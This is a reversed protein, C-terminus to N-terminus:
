EDVLIYSFLEQYRKLIDPRVQFIKITLMLLDDFDVGNQSFLFNQYRTYVKLVLEHMYSELGISFEAPTQVNNKASSIYARFLSPPFRKGIELEECIEKIIKTQDDADFIVFGRSYGLVTIEQRLLRACVSHFTGMTPLTTLQKSNQTLLKNVREQMEKAAKNTFTLSLINEPQCLGKEILHAIRYTLVRTKGSGAGALVLVPGLPATVAQQQKDNLISLDM